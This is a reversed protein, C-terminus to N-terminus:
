KANKFGQDILAQRDTFDRMFNLVSLFTIFHQYYALSYGIVNQHLAQM